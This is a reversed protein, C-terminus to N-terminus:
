AALTRLIVLSALAHESDHTLSLIWRARGAAGARAVGRLVLAPEGRAGREVEFERLAPAAGPLDRLAARGACKAAFRVALRQASPRVKGAYALEDESFIRALLRDGFRSLAREFRPVSVLCIGIGALESSM